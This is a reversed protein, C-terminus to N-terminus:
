RVHGSDSGPAIDAPTADLPQTLQPDGSLADRLAALFIASDWVPAVALAALLISTAIVTVSWARALASLPDAAESWPVRRPSVRRKNRSMATSTRNRPRESM